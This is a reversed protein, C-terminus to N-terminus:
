AGVGDLAHRPDMWGTRELIQRLKLEQEADLPFFPDRSYGGHLGWMNLISRYIALDSV